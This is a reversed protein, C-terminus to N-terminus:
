RGTPSTRGHGSGAADLDHLLESAHREIALAGCGAVDTLTAQLLERARQPEDRAVLARAWALRNFARHLPAAMAGTLQDGERFCAEAAEVEGLLTHLPAMFQVAAGYSNAGSSVYLRRYPELAELIERAHGTDGFTTCLSALYAVVQVRTVDRGVRDVGKALLREYVSRSEDLDGRLALAVALGAQFGDIGRPLSTLVRYCEVATEADGQASAIKARSGMVGAVYQPELNADQAMAWM